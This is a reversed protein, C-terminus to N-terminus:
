YFWRQQNGLCLYNSGMTVQVTIKKKEKEEEEEEEKM